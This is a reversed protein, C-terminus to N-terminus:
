PKIARMHAHHRAIGAVCPKTRELAFHEGKEAGEKPVKGKQESYKSFGGLGSNREVKCM